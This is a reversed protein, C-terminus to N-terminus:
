RIPHVNGSDGDHGNPPPMNTGAELVMEQQVANSVRKGGSISIVVERKQHHLLLLIEKDSAPKLHVSFSCETTGGLRPELTIKTIRCSPFHMQTKGSLALDVQTEEFADRFKLPAIKSFGDGPTIPRGEHASDFLRHSFLKDDTLANLEDATLELVVPVDFATLDDDGHKDLNNSFKGFRCTSKRLELM